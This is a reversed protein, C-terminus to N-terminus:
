CRVLMHKTPRYKRGGGKSIEVQPLQDDNPSFYLRLFYLFASMWKILLSISFLRKRSEVTQQQKNLEMEKKEVSKVREGKKLDDTCIIEQKSALKHESCGNFDYQLQTNFSWFLADRSLVRMVCYIKNKSSGFLHFTSLGNNSPILNADSQLVNSLLLSIYVFLLM